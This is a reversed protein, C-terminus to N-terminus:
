EVKARDSEKEGEFGISFFAFLIALTHKNLIRAYFLQIAERRWSTKHSHMCVCMIGLVFGTVMM